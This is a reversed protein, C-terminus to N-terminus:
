IKSVFVTKGGPGDFGTSVSFSSYFASAVSRCTHKLQGDVGCWMPVTGDQQLSPLNLLSFLRMDMKCFLDLNTTTVVRRKFIRKEFNLIRRILDFGFCQRNYNCFARRNKVFDSVLQEIKATSPRFWPVM